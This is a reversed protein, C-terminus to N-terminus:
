AYKGRGDRARHSNACKRSCYRDQGKRIESPKRAASVGCGQCLIYAMPEAGFGHYSVHESNTMLMLNEISNNSKDHDIHHVIYGQPIPGNAAEWVARHIFKGVRQSWYHGAANPYYSVGDFEQVDRRRHAVYKCAASCHKMQGRMVYVRRTLFAKGCQQCVRDVWSAASWCARSCYTQDARKPNVLCHACVGVYPRPM